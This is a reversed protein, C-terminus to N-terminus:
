SKGKIAEEIASMLKKDSWRGDVKIGLEDAKQLMEDRTPQDNILANTEEKLGENLGLATLFDVNWGNAKEADYDEPNIVKSDYTLGAPAFHAGGKKYVIFDSM